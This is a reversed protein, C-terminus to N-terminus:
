RSRGEGGVWARVPAAMSVHALGTFPPSRQLLAKGTVKSVAELRKLAAAAETTLRAGVPGGAWRKLLDKAEGDRIRELVMVARIQRIQDATIGAGRRQKLIRTVRARVEASGTSKLTEELYPTAQEDLGALAKSAAERVAFKNSGLDALLREVRKPDLAEVPKIRAAFLKVADAPTGLFRGESQFSEADDRKALDNWASELTVSGAVRPPRMDWALVTTDQSGSLLQGNPAFTVTTPQNRHDKFENRKTWTAVEWIQIVGGPVATALFRGDRSFAAARVDLEDPWAAVRGGTAVECVGNGGSATSPTMRWVRTVVFRGDPSFARDVPQGGSFQPLDRGTAVDWLQVLLPGQGLGGRHKVYTKVVTKGDPSVLTRLLSYSQKKVAEPVAPFSREEQGTEVNWICVMGGSGEATVLKKGDESFAVDQAAGKFAPFRDVYKDAAIDYLRIRSGDFRVGPAQPDAFTVGSDSVPWALFRGDPSIAMSGDWGGAQFRRLHKATTGDWIHADECVGRTVVRSGNASVLVQEVASDGAEPTLAKGTTTDWRYIAGDVAATLTQGGDTFHLHSAQRRDIRLREAGTTVEYLRISDGAAAVTRGDPAFAVTGLKRGGGDKPFTHRQKGTDVDFLRLRGDHSRTALTKADPSFALSPIGHSQKSHMFRRLEKGTAVEWLRAFYTGQDTTFGGSAILKGDASFTIGLVSEWGRHESNDNSFDRITRGSEFDILHIVSGQSTVALAKGDPTFAVWENRIYENARQLEIKRLEKGTAADRVRLSFDQKTVITRGDPSIAAAEISSGDRGGLTYLACGSVLDFLRTAGPSYNGNVAVALRGDASVAMTSVEIGHRFRSTGFRLMSSAPLPDDRQVLIEEQAPKVEGQKGEAKKPPDAQGTGAYIGVGLAIAALLGLISKMALGKMTGASNLVLASITVSVVAGKSFILRLTSDRLATLVAAQLAEPTLVTLALGLSTIGRRALRVRLANRGEELRRKLTGLPWGLQKAAEDRTLGSLYCLVLPSRLPEPLRQLEEDLAACVERWVLGTAPDCPEYREPPPAAPLWRNARLKAAVRCTTKHLWAPLARGRRISKALRALSLFVAQFVDEADHTNGVLRRATGLVMPGYRAILLEFADRDNATVFRQLLVADEPPVAEACLRRLYRQLMEITRVSM